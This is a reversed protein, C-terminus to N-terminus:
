RAYTRNQGLFLDWVLFVNTLHIDSYKHFNHLYVGSVFNECINQNLVFKKKQTYGMTTNLKGIPWVILFHIMGWALSNLTDHLVMVLSLSFMVTKKGTLNLAPTLRSSSSLVHPSSATLAKWVCKISHTAHWRWYTGWHQEEPSMDSRCARSTHCAEPACVCM